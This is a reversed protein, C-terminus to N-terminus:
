ADEDVTIIDTNPIEQPLNPLSPNLIQLTNLATEHNPVIKSSKRFIQMVINGIFRQIPNDTILIVHNVLDGNFLSQTIETIQGIQTPSVTVKSVDFIIDIPADAKAALGQIIKSGAAISEASVNGELINYIVRNELYWQIRNAM